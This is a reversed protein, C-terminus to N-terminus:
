LVRTFIYVAAEDHCTDGVGCMTVDVVVLGKLQYSEDPGPPYGEDTEGLRETLRRCSPHRDMELIVKVPVRVTM